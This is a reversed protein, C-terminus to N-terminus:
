SWATVKNSIGYQILVGILHADVTMTGTTTQSVKLSILDGLAPTGNITIAPTTATVYLGKEADATVTDLIVEGTDTFEQADLDDDDTIAVAQLHWESTEANVCGNAGKWYFKARITGRDWTPPFVANYGAFEETASDFALYSIMVDDNTTFEEDTVAACGNTTHATWAKAPIWMEDYAVGLGTLSGSLNASDLFDRIDSNDNSQDDCLHWRKLEANSNPMIVDPSSEAAGSNADLTYKYVENNVADFVIAADGDNLISGDIKDLAGTGGGTLAIAGYGKNPM